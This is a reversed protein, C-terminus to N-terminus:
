STPRGETCVSPLATSGGSNLATFTVSTTAHDTGKAGGATATLQVQLRALAYTADAVSSHFPRDTGPTLGLGSALISWSTASRTNGQPWSRQSLNGTGTDLRLENCTPTGDASYLWEVYWASRGVKGETSFASAWRVQRDLRDFAQHVRDQATSSAEVRNSTSSALLVAGTTLVMVVAMIGLSVLMETLTFGDDDRRRGWTDALRERAARM